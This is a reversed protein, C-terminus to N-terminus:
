TDKCLVDEEMWEGYVNVNYIDEVFHRGLVIHKDPNDKAEINIYGGKIAMWRACHIRRTLMDELEVTSFCRRAFIDVYERSNKIYLGPKYEVDQKGTPETFGWINKENTYAIEEILGWEVNKGQLHYISKLFKIYNM